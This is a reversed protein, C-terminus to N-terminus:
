KSKFPIFKNSSVFYNKFVKNGFNLFTQDYPSAFAIEFDNEDIAFNFIM